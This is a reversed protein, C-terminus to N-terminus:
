WSVQFHVASLHLPSEWTCPFGASFESLRASSGERGFAKFFGSTAIIFEWFLSSRYKKQEPSKATM